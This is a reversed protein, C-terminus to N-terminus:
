DEAPVCALKRQALARCLKHAAAKDSGAARLRWLRGKAPLDVPVAVPTLGGLAGDSVAAIKAWAALAATESTFAGLQVAGKKAAAAMGKPEARPREAPREEFSRRLNAVSRSPPQGSREPSTLTAAALREPVTAAPGPAPAAVGTTIVVISAIRGLRV